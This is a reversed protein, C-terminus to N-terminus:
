PWWSVAGSVRRLRRVKMDGVDLALRPRMCVWDSDELVKSTLRSGNVVMTFVSIDAWSCARMGSGRYWKGGSGRDGVFWGKEISEKGGPM